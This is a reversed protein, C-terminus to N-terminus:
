LNKTSIKETLKYFSKRPLIPITKKITKNFCGPICVVKGKELCKLSLRVVEDAEMWPIVNNLNSRKKEKELKGHFGTKTLGPCLSQVQIGYKYVEMHITEMFSNLFSKTAAYISSGPDPIFAAMSSVTIIKGNRRRIMAPLVAHVLHVTATIHVQIMKLQREIPEKYFKEGEGFGACNVLMEVNKLSRLKKTFRTLQKEDTLDVQETKVDVKYDKELERALKELLNENIDTIILNYKKAALHQAFSLGM